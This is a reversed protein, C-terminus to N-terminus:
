GGCQSKVEIILVQGLLKSNTSIPRTTSWLVINQKAQRTQRSEAILTADVLCLVKECGGLSSLVRSSFVRSRRFGSKIRWM